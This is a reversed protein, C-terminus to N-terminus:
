SVLHDLHGPQQRCMKEHRHLLVSSCVHGVDYRAVASLSWVAPTMTRQHQQFGPIACPHTTNVKPTPLSPLSHLPPASPTPKEITSVTPIALTQHQHLLLFKPIALPFFILLLHHHHHRRFHECWGGLRNPCIYTTHQQFAGKEKGKRTREGAPKISM